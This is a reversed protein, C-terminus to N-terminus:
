IENKKMEIESKYILNNIQQNKMFSQLRVRVIGYTNKIDIPKHRIPRKQHRITQFEKIIRIYFLESTKV